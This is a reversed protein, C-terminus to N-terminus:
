LWSGGAFIGVNVFAVDNDAALEAIEKGGHAHFGGTNLAAELWEDSLSVVDMKVM